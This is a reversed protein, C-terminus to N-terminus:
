QRRFLTKPSVNLALLCDTVEPFPLWTGKMTVLARHGLAGAARGRQRRGSSAAERRSLQGRQAAAPEGLREEASALVVEKQPEQSSKVAVQAKIQTRLDETGLETDSTVKMRPDNNQKSCGNIPSRNRALCRVDM